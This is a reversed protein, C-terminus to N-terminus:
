EIFVSWLPHFHSVVIDIWHKYPHLLQYSHHLSDLLLRIRWTSTQLTEEVNSLSIDLYFSKVSQIECETNVSLKSSKFVDIKDTMHVQCSIQVGYYYFPTAILM